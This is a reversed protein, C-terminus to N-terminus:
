RGGGDSRRQDLGDDPPIADEGRSHPSQLQSAWARAMECLRYIQQRSRGTRRAIEAIPLDDMLLRFVRGSVADRRAFEAYIQQALVRRECGSPQAATTQGRLAHPDAVSRVRRDHRRVESEIIDNAKWILRARFLSIFNPEREARFKAVADDLASALGPVDCIMENWADRRAQREAAGRPHLLPALERALMDHLPQWAAQRRRPDSQRLEAALARVSAAYEDMTEPWRETLHDLEDLSICHNM